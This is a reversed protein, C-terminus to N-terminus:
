KRKGGKMWSYDYHIGNRKALQELRARIETVTGQVDRIRKPDKRGVENSFTWKAICNLVTMAKRWDLIAKAALSEAETAGNSGNAYQEIKKELFMGFLGPDITVGPGKGNEQNM